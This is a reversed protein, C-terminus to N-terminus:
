SATLVNSNQPAVPKAAIKVSAVMLAITGVVSILITAINPMNGLGPTKALLFSFNNKSDAVVAYAIAGSVALGLGGKILTHPTCVIQKKAPNSETFERLEGSNGVTKPSYSMEIKFKKCLDSIDSLYRDLDANGIKHVLESCDEEVFGRHEIQGRFITLLDWRFRYLQVLDYEHRELLTIVMKSLLGRDNENIDLDSAIQYQQEVKSAVKVASEANFFVAFKCMLLLLARKDEDTPSQTGERQSKM